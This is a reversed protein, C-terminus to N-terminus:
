IIYNKNKNSKRINKEVIEKLNNRARFIRTSVTNENLKTMKSIEEIKYGYISQLILVDRYSKKLSNLMNLVQNLENIKEVNYDSAVSYDCDSLSVNLKENRKIKIRIFERKLITKLWAKVKKLDNLQDLGKWARIFTEHLLDEADEKSSSLYYGYQYLIKRNEIYIKKYFIKKETETM